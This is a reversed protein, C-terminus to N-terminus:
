INPIKTENAFTNAHVTCDVVKWHFNWLAIYYIFHNQPFLSILFVILQAHLKTFIRASKKKWKRKQRSREWKNQSAKPELHLTHIFSPLFNLHLLVKSGFQVHFYTEGSMHTHRHTCRECIFTFKCVSVSLSVNIYVNHITYQCRKMKMKM